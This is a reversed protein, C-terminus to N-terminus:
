PTYTKYEFVLTNTGSKLEIETEYYPFFLSTTNFLENAIWRNRPLQYTNKDFQTLMYKTKFENQTTDFLTKDTKNWYTLSIDYYQLSSDLFTLFPFQKKEWDDYTYFLYERNDVPFIKIKIKQDKNSQVWYSITHHTNLLAPPNNQYLCSIKEPKLSSHILKKDLCKNEEWYISIQSSWLLTKLKKEGILKIFYDLDEWFNPIDTTTHYAPTDILQHTTHYKKEVSVENWFDIYWNTHTMLSIDWPYDIKFHNNKAYEFSIDLAYSSSFQCLLIFFLIKKSM